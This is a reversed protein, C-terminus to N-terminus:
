YQYFHILITIKLKTVEWQRIYEQCIAICSIDWGEFNIWDKSYDVILWNKLWLIFNYSIVEDCQLGQTGICIIPM